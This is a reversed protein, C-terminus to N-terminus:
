LGLIPVLDDDSVGASGAFRVGTKQKALNHARGACAGSQARGGMATAIKDGPAFEGNPAEVVEGVAEIGLIRPFRVNPSHGQRTFLESRNLGFARVRILAWGPTPTPIRRDELRLVQPDGAERIMVAKM